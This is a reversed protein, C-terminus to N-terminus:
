LLGEFEQMLDMMSVWSYITQFSLTWAYSRCLALENVLDFYYQRAKEIDLVNRECMEPRTM